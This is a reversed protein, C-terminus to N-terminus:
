KIVKQGGVIYIKGEQMESVPRGEMDFVAGEVEEPSVVKEIENTGDYEGGISLFMVAAAPAFNLSQTEVFKFYARYPKVTLSNTAKVFVDKKENHVPKYAFYEGDSLDTITEEKFSGILQWGGVAESEVEAITTVGGTFTKAEEADVGENLKYLYAVNAKPETEEEFYLTTNNSEMLKYFTYNACTEADPAFPLCITGYTYETNFLREYTANTYTGEANLDEGDTVVLEKEVSQIYIWDLCKGNSGAQLVTVETEESVAFEANASLIYGATAVELTDSGCVISFTTGSNGWVQAKVNYVGPTLTTIVVPVTSANYGGAANSCRINANGGTTTTMGEM